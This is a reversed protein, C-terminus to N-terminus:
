GSAEGQYPTNDFSVVSSFLIEGEKEQAWVMDFKEEGSENVCRIAVFTGKLNSYSYETMDISKVTGPAEDGYIM